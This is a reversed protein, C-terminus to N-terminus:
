RLFDFIQILQQNTSMLNLLERMVERYPFQGTFGELWRLICKQDIQPQLELM